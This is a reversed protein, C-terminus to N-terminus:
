PGERGAAHKKELEAALGQFDDRSRIADFDSEELENPEAWGAKVADQLAAVAQDAFRTAEAPTVGSQADAALGILLALARSREFRVESSPAKLSAWLDLARRLDATAGASQGSRVRARGRYAHSFALRSTYYEVTPHADVIKQGISLATDFAAFAEAFHQQRVHMRGFNNYIRTLDRQFGPIMPNADALKQQIALAQEFSDRAEA